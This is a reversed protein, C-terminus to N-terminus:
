RTIPNVQPPYFPGNIVVIAARFLNAMGYFAMITLHKKTFGMVIVKKPSSRNVGNHDREEKRGVGTVGLTEASNEEM